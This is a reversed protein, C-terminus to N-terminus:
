ASQREAEGRRQYYDVSMAELVMEMEHYKRLQRHTWLHSSIAGLMVGIIFYAIQAVVPYDYISMTFCTVLSDHGFPQNVFLSFTFTDFGTSYSRSHNGRAFAFLRM